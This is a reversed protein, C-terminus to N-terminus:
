AIDAHLSVFFTAITLSGVVIILLAFISTNTTFLLSFIISICMIFCHACLSFIRNSSQSYETLPTKNCLYECYRASNCYPNGTLVVMTMADSRVLDGLCVCWRCMSNFCSTYCGERSVPKILDFIFDFISFFGTM